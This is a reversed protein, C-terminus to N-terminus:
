GDVLQSVLFDCNNCWQVIDLKRGNITRPFLVGIPDPTTSLLELPSYILDDGDGLLHTFCTFHLCSFMMRAPHCTGTLSGPDIENGYAGTHESSNPLQILIETCM